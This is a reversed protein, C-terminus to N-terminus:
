SLGMEVMIKPVTNRCNGKIFVRSISKGYVHRLKNPSRWRWSFLRYNRDDGHLLNLDPRVSPGFPILLSKQSRFSVGYGFPWMLKLYPPMMCYVSVFLYTERPLTRYRVELPLLIDHPLNGFCKQYIQKNWVLVHMKWLKKTHGNPSNM